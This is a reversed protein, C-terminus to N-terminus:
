HALARGAYYGLAAGALGGVISAALYLLAFGTDGAHADYFVEVTFTSFTTFGGCFGVAIGARLPAPLDDGFPILAGLVISGAVNIAFTMWPTNSGSVLTGLGYRALVGALGALGVALVTV